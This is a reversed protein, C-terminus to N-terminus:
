DGEASPVAMGGIAGVATSALALLTEPIPVQYVALTIVAGVCLVAVTSLALIIVKRTEPLIGRQNESM